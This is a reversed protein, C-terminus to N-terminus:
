QKEAEELMLGFGERGFMALALLEARNRVGTKQYVRFLAGRVGDESVMQVTAIQANSIGLLALDACRWEHETLRFRGRLSVHHAPHHAPPPSATHQRAVSPADVPFTKHCDPCTTILPM